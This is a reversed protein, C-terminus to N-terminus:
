RTRLKAYQRHALTAAATRGGEIGVVFTVYPGRSFSVEYALPASGQDIVLVTSHAIGPVTALAATAGPGPKSHAATTNQAAIDAVEASAVSSSSLRTVCLLLAGFPHASTYFRLQSSVWQSRTTRGVVGRCASSRAQAFGISGARVHDVEDFAQAHYGHPPPAVVSPAAGAAVAPLAGFASMAGFVLVGATRAARVSLRLVLRAM